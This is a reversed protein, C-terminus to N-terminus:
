YFNIKKLTKMKSFYKSSNSEKIIKLSKSTQYSSTKPKSIMTQNNKDFTQISAIFDICMGDIVKYTSTLFKSPLLNKFDRGKQKRTYFINEIGGNNTRTNENNEDIINKMSFGGWLFCYPLYKELLLDEVFEKCRIFNHYSPNKNTEEKSLDSIVNNYIIMFHSTFPSQSKITSYTLSPIQKLENTYFDYDDLDKQLIDIIEDKLKPRLYVLSRIKNFSDNYDKNCTESLFM